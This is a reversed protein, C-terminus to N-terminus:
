TALVGADYGIELGHVRAAVDVRVQHFYNKARLAPTDPFLDRQLESLRAQGRRLLYALVEVTRALRLRIPEGNVELTAQGLTRLFLQLPRDAGLLVDREFCASDLAQLHAQVTPLLLWEPGLFPPAPAPLTAAVEAARRLHAARGESDVEALALHVLLLARLHGGTELMSRAAELRAVGDREGQRAQWFGGRHYLLAQDYSSKNLHEARALHIRAQTDERELTAVALLWLRLRLETRPHGQAAPLLATFAVRAGPVDGQSWLLQAQLEASLLDAGESQSHALTEKAEDLRGLALLSAARSLLAYALRKQRGHEAAFTLYALAPGHEDFHGHLHGLLTAVSVQVDLPADAALAWAHVALSFLIDRGEGMVWLVRTRARYWLAADAANLDDPTVQDLAQLALCPSGQQFHLSALHVAAAWVGRNLAQQLRLSAELHQGLNLHCVGAWRFDTPTPHALERFRELGLTYAGAQAAQQVATMGQPYGEMRQEVSAFRCSGVTVAHDQIGPIPTEERSHQEEGEAQRGVGVGVVYPWLGFGM